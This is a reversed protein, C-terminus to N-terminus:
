SSIFRPKNYIHSNQEAYFYRYDGNETNELILSLAMNIKFTIDSNEFVCRLFEGVNSMNEGVTINCIRIGSRSIHNMLIARSNRDYVTSLADASDAAWPEQCDTFPRTQLPGRWTQHNHFNHLNLGRNSTFTRNCHTCAINTPTDTNTNKTSSKGKGKGKGKGM